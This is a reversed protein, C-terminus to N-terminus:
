DKNRLSPFLGTQSGQNIIPPEVWYVQLDHYFMHNNLEFDIPFTFSNWNSLIKLAASRKVIYSDTCKSAPHAKLYCLVDKKIRSNEIRLNCGNGLFIFDWDEPVDNLVANIKSSINKPFIVDDELVLFLEEKSKSIKDFILFHKYILSIDSRSLKRFPIVGNYNMLSVKNYWTEECPNYKLLFDDSPEDTVFEYNCFSAQKFLTEINQKRDKLKSYHAVYTKM